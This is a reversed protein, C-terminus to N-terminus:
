KPREEVVATDALLLFGQREQLKKFRLIKMRGLPILRGLRGVALRPWFRCKYVQFPFIPRFTVTRSRRAGNARVGVAITYVWGLIPGVLNPWEAVKSLLAVAVLLIAGAILIGGFAFTLLGTAFLLVVVGLLVAVQFYTRRIFRPSQGM